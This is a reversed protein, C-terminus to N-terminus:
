YSICRREKVGARSLVKCNLAHDKEKGMKVYMIM